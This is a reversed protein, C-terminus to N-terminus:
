AIFTVIGKATFAVAILLLIALISNTIGTFKILGNLANIVGGEMEKINGPNDLAELLPLLMLIGIGECIAAILSLLFILYIKKGLHRQFINLYKFIDLIPSLLKLM